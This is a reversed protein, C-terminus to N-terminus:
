SSQPAELNLILKNSNIPLHMYRIIQTQPPEYTWDKEEKKGREKKINTRKKQPAFAWHPSYGIQESKIRTLKKQWSIFVLAAIYCYLSRSNQICCGNQLFWLQVKGPQLKRVM